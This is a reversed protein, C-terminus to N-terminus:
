RSLLAWLRPMIRAVSSSGGGAALAPGFGDIGVRAVVGREFRYVVVDPARPDAGASALLRAGTPLRLTSELRGFPGFAGSVGGFFGIRDGLVVLARPGSQIRVREGLFTDPRGRVIESATVDVARSFGRTGIWALRGGAKVYSALSRTLATPAFQPSGAVLVGSYRRLSAPGARALALDTTLDYRLRAGDLKNLIAASTAFGRPRGRGAFPRDLGVRPDGPLVDPYGDGNEEVPNMAQWTLAPLVVLVRQRKRAQVVLPAEYSHSGAQLELLAIGSAGRPAHLRLVGSRSVGRALTRASGIRHLRWRYRRGAAFVRVSVPAGARVPRAPLQAALYRVTVGPHGRVAGRQPPLVPPGPNGAADRVRVALLYTGAPAQRHASGLGVRGDWHLVGTGSPSSHRAVLRPKPLDTRYVLLVPRRKPGSFRVTATRGRGHGGPTIVLPRVYGVIPRPPTTDLFIKRGSTVVRGQGRLSVRVHYEGDPAVRGRETRGDWRFRYRRGQRVALDEALTRVKTGDRTVISLTVDDTRRLRIAFVVFDARGDGNPSFHRNFTLSEIVPASRKLRTTVFFAGVTAVVLAAFVLAAPSVHRPRLTRGSAEAANTM